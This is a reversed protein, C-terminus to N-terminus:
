ALLDKKKIRTIRKVMGKPIQGRGCQQGDPSIDQALVIHKKTKRVLFGVSLVHCPKVEDHGSSWGDLATADDWLVAVIPPYKLRVAM